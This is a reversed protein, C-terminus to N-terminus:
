RIRRCISVILIGVGIFMGSAPEPIQIAALVSDFDSGVVIRDIAAGTNLGSGSDQRLAISHIARMADPLEDDDISPSLMDVPNIWLTAEGNGNNFGVIAQISEGFFFDGNWDTMGDGPSSAAIALSFDGGASPSTTFLRANLGFITDDKFSIFYDENIGGQGGGQISFEVGYYWTENPGIVTGTLRNDDQSGPNAVFAQGDFVQIDPINGSHATWLGGSVQTLDGDAYDFNESFFVDANANTTGIMASLVFTLLISRSAIM